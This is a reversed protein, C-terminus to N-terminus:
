GKKKRPAAKPRRKPPEIKGQAALRRLVKSIAPESTISTVLGTRSLGRAIATWNYRLPKPLCAWGPKFAAIIEERAAQRLRAKSAAIKRRMQEKSAKSFTPSRREPFKKGGFRSPRM